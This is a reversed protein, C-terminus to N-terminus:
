DKVKNKVLNDVIKYYKWKEKEWNYKQNFRDANNVLEKRKEPHYYLDLIAEALEKENGPKFFKVMSDDFYSETLETRSVIVPIGMAVYELLKNSLATDTLKSKRRPCIGINAKAILFPMQELPLFKRSFYIQDKLKLKKVLNILGPLADGKGYIYFRINPIKEKILSFARIAIDLGYRKVITGHYILNFSGPNCNLLIKKRDFIKSDPLNMIVSCKSSKVTRETLVNYLCETVTIVYNSFISSIKETLRLALIFFHNEKLGFKTAYLEPMLDHIDLVVKAGFIKPILAVFVLFDPMTNIHVLDYKQRFYLSNLKLFSRIFFLFYGMVYAFVGSGRYRGQPLRHLSVGNFVEFPNGKKERLCIFDIMDGREALAEAERRVRPDSLYYTYAVMCVKKM